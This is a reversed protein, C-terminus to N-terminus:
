LVTIVQSYFWPASALLADDFVPKFDKNVDYFSLEFGLQIFPALVTECTYVPVYARPIGGEAIYDRLCHSLACRGSMLFQIDGDKKLKELLNNNKSLKGEVEFIGGIMKKEGSITNKSKKCCKALRLTLMPHQEDRGTTIFIVITDM